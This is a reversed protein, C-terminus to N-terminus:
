ATSARVVLQPFFEVPTQLAVGDDLGIRLAAAGMDLLPLHVSTLAPRVDTAAPIDNFGAVAVDQPILLGREQLGHMAGIALQDATGVLATIDPWKSTLQCAAWHGGGRDPTTHIVHVRGGANEIRVRLGLVRDITSSLNEQGAAVGVIRHGLELLHDALAEAGALNDILVRGGGAEANGITVTRGGAAEFAVMRATLAQKYDPDALGSGAIIVLGYRHGQLMRFYALETEVNRDTSCVTVLLQHPAAERYIGRVIESFYPDGVDGVLVGVARNTGAILAQAQANPVYDLATAAALVSVRLSETVPYDSGSLVRSATALSVGAKRAVDRLSAM